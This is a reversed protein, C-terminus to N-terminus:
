RTRRNAAGAEAGLATVLKKLDPALNKPCVLVKGGAQVVVLDSAGFVAVTGCDSYVICGESQVLAAPGCAVNGRADAKLARELAGWNGVDDWEFEAPVLRLGSTKELVGFDISIRQLGSFAELMEAGRGSQGLLPELTRLGRYTVPLHREFLELLTRNRWLFIGSNWFFNGDAVYRAAREADPKEIFRVVPWSEAPIAPKEAQVYGYGTEPRDPVIGFVVANAGPLSRIGKEITRCYADADGVYHDAPVALMLADPDRRELHLACFGLCAATDRGIPEVILNAAPLGPLQRQALERHAEGISVFIRELPVLGTLRAVTQQLLTHEGLLPVFPKPVTETSLPWFREGRGGAMVVAYVNAM